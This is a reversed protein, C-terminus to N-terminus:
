NNIVRNIRQIKVCKKSLVDIEAFIGQIIRPFSNEIKLRKGIGSIFRNITTVPQTGIVSNLSGTMGADTIYGMGEPMIMEDATQIHTHSGILLSARGDIYFGLAKKESTAEAHFDIIIIGDKTKIQDYLEDFKRFPCDVPEMFVRGVFNIVFLKLNIEETKVQLIKMGMGPSGPPYNAPRVLKTMKNFSKIVDKKDWIHNGSTMIDVGVNDLRNYSKPTIGFGDPSTNEVNAIIFHPEYQSKLHEINNELTEIGGEGQIDGIYLIKINRNQM